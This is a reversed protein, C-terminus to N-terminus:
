DAEKKVQKRAKPYEIRNHYVNVLKKKFLDRSHSIEHLTIECNDFQRESIQHEVLRDVLEGITQENVVKLSRSAAELTDAMMLIATEKSFPCPGPYSFKQDDVELDPYKNQFMRYFYLVKTTGHHTRIFDIVQEPLKYKRAMEVGLEVHRIIIEASKDYELNDHPNEGYFQNEVFFQPMAMKGIDHYLAGARVLLPNGGIKYAVEEAMSAVQLSHQFTGPAQEALKRLLPNNVDTLEILTVDSLFGFSKEFVFVLPYALLLLVSNGGFWFFTDVDVKAFSVEQVLSFGYFVASTILFNLVVTYFLQARKRLNKLSFISIIGASFQIFVFEFGNPAFFGIIFITILHVFLALRTDYFIRVMIPTIAFPILYISTLEFKIFVSAGAIFAVVLILIFSTKTPSNLIEPRFNFLFLYLILMSSIIVITQGLLIFQHNDSESIALQYETKLSELIKFKEDDVMQGTYIIPAGTKMLDTTSSIGEMTGQKVKESTQKDFLINPSLFMTLGMNHIFDMIKLQQTSPYRKLEKNEALEQFLFAIATSPTYVENLDYETAINNDVIFITNEESIDAVTEIVGKKYVGALIGGIMKKYKLRDVKNNKPNSLYTMFENNVHNRVLRAYTSDWQQEFYYEFKNLKATAISSDKKFYAKYAKALSDREAKIEAQSKYIVFDFPASLNEHQWPSGKKYEYRFQRERPLAFVILVSAVAFLAIIYTKKIIGLLKERKM